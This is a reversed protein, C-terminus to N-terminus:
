LSACSKKKGQLGARNSKRAVEKKIYDFEEASISFANCIIKDIKEQFAESARFINKSKAFFTKNYLDLILWHTKDPLLPLPLNQLHSKLVKQSNYKKRFIFTYIDSNFLAAITEMQYDKSIFFNASNLLLSNGTDLVCVLRNSIFRYAIKKQRYYEVPAAQQYLKPQFVLYYEPELFYYKEIDKGRFIPEANEAKEKLLHLKNNGTVLGLAFITNTNLTIHEKKHIKDLIHMDRPKITASVIYDPPAINQLPLQYVACDKDQIFVNREGDNEELRADALSHEGRADGANQVIQLAGEASKKLNLLISESLVGSFVKGLLKIFIKHGSNFIFKRIKSHAAVNLFSYPLFFYLAGNEKLMKVANYLSISFIEATGLEPYLNCFKKKQQASFKSGWPPNTVIYDFQKCGATNGAAPTRKARAKCTERVDAFLPEGKSLDPLTIDQRSINLSIDKDGFFLVLNVFCIKLAIEDIDRAYIKAPDHMKTLINLLISGSGCCPDLVTKDLPIKIENLLVAPTYYSGRKSKESINQVSQYFAGLIDDDFLPVEYGNFFNKIAAWNPYKVAWQSLLADLKSNANPQWNAAILKCSRLIAFVLALVGEEASLNSNEFDAVINALLKKRKKGTLGAFCLTKKSLLTRNARSNLRERSKGLTDIIHEFVVQTYCNNVDPEPIVKTKIWNNVTACSVGLKESIAEKQVLNDM